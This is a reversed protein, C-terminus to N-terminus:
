VRTRLQLWIRQASILFDINPKCSLLEIPLNDGKLRDCLQDFWNRRNQVRELMTQVYSSNRNYNRIAQSFWDVAAKLYTTNEYKTVFCLKGYLLAILFESNDATRQREADTLSKTAYSIGDMLGDETDEINLSAKARQLWYDPSDNLESQLKEYLSRVVPIYGIQGGPIVGQSLIFNIADFMYMSHAITAYGPILALRKVLNSFRDALWQYGKVSVVHRILLALGTTSNTIVKYRSHTDPLEGRGSERIDIVPALKECLAFLEASRIGLATALSSFAKDAVAVVLLLEFEEESLVAMPTLESKIGPAKELIRFTNELLTRRGDFRLMGLSDLKHNLRALEGDSLRSELEFDWRDEVHRVLPGIVDPETRNVSVIASCHSSALADVSRGLTAATEPTLSNTDFVLLRNTGKLLDNLGGQSMRLSSDVFYVDRSKAANAISRLMLSKGSFRRGRVLILQGSESASAVAAEIDRQIYYAPLVRDYQVSDAAEKILFALNTKRDPPLFSTPNQRLSFPNVGGTARTAAQRGWEVLRAYFDDYSTVYLVTNIGHKTLRALEFKTLKKSSVFMSRRLPPFAQNYEALAFLLDIENSLSCGVFLTNGEVLDTKLSNLMSKNSILSRVYQGTSFIIKSPEDYLLEDAADGHVKYVCPLNKAISSILRNPLVKNKFSSNSEIADDINLTYIYPWPCELFSRKDLPLIVGVFFRQIIRKAETTPVFTNDLFAEAVEAFQRGELEKADPGANAVLTSVMTSMFEAEDPVHAERTSSGKTFGAGLVPVLTRQEFMTAFLTKVQSDEFNLEDM